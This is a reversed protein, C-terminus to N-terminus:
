FLILLFLITNNGHKTIIKCHIRSITRDSYFLCIDNPIVGEPTTQQRGIMIDEHDTNRNSNIMGRPTVFYEM